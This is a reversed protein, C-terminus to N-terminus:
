SLKTFTSGLGLLTVIAGGAIFPAYPIPEGRKRQRTILLLAAIAGGALAMVILAIPVLQFGLALGVFLALKVDGMGMGVGGTFIAPLLLIGGALLGGFVADALSADPMLVAVALAGLIAPYTIVNPVRFSLLDTASCIILACVYCCVVVLELGGYQAGAIAFLACTSAVVLLRRLWGRAPEEELVMAGAEAHLMPTGVGSEQAQGDGAEDDDDYPETALREILVDLVIGVPLGILALLLIVM